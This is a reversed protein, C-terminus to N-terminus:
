TRRENGTRHYFAEKIDKLREDAGKFMERSSIYEKSYVTAHVFSESEECEPINISLIAFEDGGIRFLCGDVNDILYSAVKKIISDGELYGKTHNINHLGNIDVLTLYFEHNDLFYERFRNEFDTRMKFGTLSDHRYTALQDQLHIVKEKLLANELVLKEERKNM